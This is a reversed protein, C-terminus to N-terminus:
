RRAFFTKWVLDAYKRLGEVTLHNGDPTLDGAVLPYNQLEGNDYTCAPVAGCVRALQQHYHDMVDQQYVVAQHRIAGSEDLLDCPGDGTHTDRATSVKSVADAYAQATAWMSVVYIHATPAYKVVTQLVTTLKDAFPTYNQADAGDCRIDNDVTQVLVVGPTPTVTGLRTAQGLLDDVTAGDEALDHNHGDYAHDTALLRQYVGGVMPNTGTAWSNERADRSADTPDSNYGTAGSHGLVVISRGSAAASPHSPSSTACSGTLLASFLTSFLVLTRHRSM